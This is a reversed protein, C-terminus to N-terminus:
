IGKNYIPKQDKAISKEQQMTITGGEIKYGEMILRMHVKRLAEGFAIFNAVGRKTLPLNNQTDVQATSQENNV